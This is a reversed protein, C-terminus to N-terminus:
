DEARLKALLAELEEINAKKVYKSIESKMATRAALAKEEDSPEKQEVDSGNSSDSPNSQDLVSTSRTLPKPAAPKRMQYIGLESLAELSTCEHKSRIWNRLYTKSKSTMGAVAKKWEPNSALESWNTDKTISFKECVAAMTLTNRYYSRVDVGPNPLVKNFPISYEEIYFFLYPNNDIELLSM